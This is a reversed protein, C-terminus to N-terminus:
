MADSVSQAPLQKLERADGSEQAIRGVRSLKL